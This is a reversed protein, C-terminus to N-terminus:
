NNSDSFNSFDRVAVEHRLILRYPGRDDGVWAWQM